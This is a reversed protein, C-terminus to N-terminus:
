GPLRSLDAVTLFLARLSALLCLRNARIRPDEAMVMVKDFFADVAPKLEAGTALAAAYDRRRAHGEVLPTIRGLDDALAREESSDLLAADLTTAVTDGAKKLINAIRKNAGALAAASPQTVFESLAQLRAAFDVPSAPRRDLVADFMETTISPNSELSYARLRELLYDYVEGEVTARSPLPTTAKGSAVASERLTALDAEILDLAGHIMAPLDIDIARELVIRLVGLALRRLAYPDKTGSPKQGIAFIGVITDLKDALALALGTPTIPLADGAFRPLYQESLADAVAATEGDHRAYYTGMIGQLEPFEGVLGTLLDCKGLEAARATADADAGVRPALQRALSKVRESKAFYSGLQAQFTMTKLRGRREALSVRCDQEWFFAADALRPRVVRENGARVEGPDRSDINAVTVFWPSLQGDASRVPFYRQHDQLTAILVEPPLALFREEFRGMVPVPWEVLATVEDLLAASMIATGGQATALQEVGVRIRERRAAFDVIVRGKTELLTAYRKPSSLTIDRPAMFRHGRSARGTDIDLIRAPVVDRGYLMVIWHVPRVFEATGSGWRMRKAIPLKALSEQVIDALLSTTAAGPKVGTYYLFEGKPESIRELAAVTTNCSEAFASAARTPAGDAGFSASVPPGKRKLVQDPQRDVVKQIMVALRRPAAYRTVTGHRIGANQLGQVIGAEFAEALLPLSKPPLEETGIEVLFDQRSM